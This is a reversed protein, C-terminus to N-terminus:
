LTFCQPLPRRVIAYNQSVADAPPQGGDAAEAKRPTPAADAGAAAAAGGVKGKEKKRQRQRAKKKSLQKPEGGAPAAAAADPATRTRETHPADAAAEKKKRRKNAPKKPESGAAEEAAAGKADSLAAAEALSVALVRQLDVDNEQADLYEELAECDQLAEEPEWTADPFGQWKVLYKTNKQARSVRHVPHSLLPIVHIVRCHVASAPDSDNGQAVAAPPMESSQCGAPCAKLGEGKNSFVWRYCPQTTM